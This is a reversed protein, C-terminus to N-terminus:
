FSTRQQMRSTHHSQTYIYIYIYIYIYVRLMWYTELNKTCANLITTSVQFNLINNSYIKDSSQGIKIMEPEFSCSYCPNSYVRSFSTFKLFAIQCKLLVIHLLIRSKTNTPNKRNCKSATKGDACTKRVALTEWPVRPKTPICEAATYTNRDERYVIFKQKLSPFFSAVSVYPISWVAKPADQM